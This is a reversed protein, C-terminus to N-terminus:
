QFLDFADTLHNMNWMESRTLKRGDKSKKLIGSTNHTCATSFTTRWTKKILFDKSNLVRWLAVHTPKYNTESSLNRCSSKFDPLLIFYM